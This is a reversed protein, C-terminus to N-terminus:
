WNSPQYDKLFMGWVHQNENLGSFIPDCIRAAADEYDLPPHFDLEQRKREAIELPDEDNIWGTDVSNMHIGDRVYDAASTRTMMNLSAKAMNTHPHTDRKFARYFVGEMASVNVIHKDRTPTKQMLPKLQGNLLFPAIANVLHVEVLEVPSIEALRLRWSNVTRLDVQQQDWDLVGRPFLSEDALRDEDTLPVQALVAPDLKAPFTSRSDQATATAATSIGPLTPALLQSEINSLPTSADREDRVLHAYFQPPRRITQCANNILFDLHPLTTSLHAALSLVGGLDRLDIGHITLRDVWDDCDPESAYRRAADKPFRTTVVLNAGARLLKLGVHYGIKVRGGTLVAYRGRLDATQQRKQWNFAACEPCLSDYFSHLDVYDQKCIYCNRANELRRTPPDASLSQNEGSQQDGSQAAPSAFARHDASPEGEEYPLPQPPEGKRILPQSRLQNESAARIGTSELLQQDRQKQVERAERRQQRHARTIQRRAARGPHTLRGAAAFLRDREERELLLLQGREEVLEELAEIAALLTERDLSTM